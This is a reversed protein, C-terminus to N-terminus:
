MAIRRSYSHKRNYRLEEMIKHVDYYVLYKNAIDCIRSVREM